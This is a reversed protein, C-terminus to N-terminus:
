LLSEVWNEFSHKYNGQTLELIQKSEFIAAGSALEPWNTFEIDVNLRRYFINRPEFLSLADYSGINYIQNVSDGKHITLFRFGCM